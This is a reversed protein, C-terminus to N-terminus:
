GDETCRSVTNLLGAASRWSADSGKCTLATLLDDCDEFQDDTVLGAAAGCVEGFHTEHNKWYGPSCNGPPPPPPPPPPECVEKTPDCEPPPPPEETPNPSFNAGGTAAAAAVGTPGTPSLSSSPGSCAAVFALAGAVSFATLLQRTSHLKM